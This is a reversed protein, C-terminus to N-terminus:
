QESDDSQYVKFSGKYFVKLRKQKELAKLAALVQTEGVRCFKGSIKSLTKANDCFELIEEALIDVAEPLAKRPIVRTKGPNFELCSSGFDFDLYGSFSSLFGRIRTRLVGGVGSSGYGHIVDFPSLNGRKVRSNYFDVLEKIAELKTLGHLDLENSM